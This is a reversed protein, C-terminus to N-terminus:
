KVIRFLFNACALVLRSCDPDEPIKEIRFKLHSFPRSRKKVVRPHRAYLNSRKRNKSGCLWERRVRRNKVSLKVHWSYPWVLPMWSRFRTPWRIGTPRPITPIMTGPCSPFILISNSLPDRHSTPDNPDYNRPMIPIDFDTPMVLNVAKSRSAIRQEDLLLTLSYQKPQVVKDSEASVPPAEDADLAVLISFPIREVQSGARVELIFDHEGSRVFWGRTEITVVDFGARLLGARIVGDGFFLKYNLEKLSEVGLDLQIPPLSKSVAQDSVLGVNFVLSTKEQIGQTGACVVLFCLLALSSRKM